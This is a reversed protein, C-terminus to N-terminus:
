VKSQQGASISLRHLSLRSARTCYLQQGAIEPARLSKSNNNGFPAAAAAAGEEGLLLGRDGVSLPRTRQGIALGSDDKKAARLARLQWRYYESGEGGVLFQFTPQNANKQLALTEFTPGISAVFPAVSKIATLIEPRPVPPEVGM